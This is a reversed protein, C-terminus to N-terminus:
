LCSRRWDWYAARIRDHREGLAVFLDAAEEKRGQEVLADACFEVAHAVPLPTNVDRTEGKAYPEIDTLLSTYPVDLEKLLRFHARFSSPSVGESLEM